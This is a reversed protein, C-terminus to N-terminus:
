VGLIIHALSFGMLFGLVAGILLFIRGIRREPNTMMGENEVEREKTDKKDPHGHGDYPDFWTNEWDSCAWKGPMPRRSIICHKDKQIHDYASYEADRFYDCNMCNKM